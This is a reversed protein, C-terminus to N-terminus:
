MYEKTKLCQQSSVIFDGNKFLSLKYSWQWPSGFYTLSNAKTGFGWVRWSKYINKETKHRKTWYEETGQWSAEKWHIEKETSYHPNVEHHSLPEALRGRGTWHTNWICLEAPPRVRWHTVCWQWKYLNMWEIRSLAASCFSPQGFGRVM